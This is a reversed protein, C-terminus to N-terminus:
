VCHVSQDCACLVASKYGAALTVYVHCLNLRDIDEVGVVLSDGHLLTRRSLSVTECSTLFSGM